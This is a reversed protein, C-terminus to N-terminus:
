ISYKSGFGFDAFTKGVIIEPPTDNKTQNNAIYPLYIIHTLPNKKYRILVAILTTLIALALFGFIIFRKKSPSSLMKKLKM